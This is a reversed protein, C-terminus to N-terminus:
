RAGAEQDSEVWRQLHKLVMGRLSVGERRAKETVQEWFAPPIRRIKFERGDGRLPKFGRTYERVMPLRHRTGKKTQKTMAITEKQGVM